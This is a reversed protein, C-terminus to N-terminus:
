VGNHHRQMTLIHSVINKTQKNFHHYRFYCVSWQNLLNSVRSQLLWPRIPLSDSEYDFHQSNSDRNFASCLNQIHTVMSPQIDRWKWKVGHMYFWYLLVCQVKNVLRVFKQTIQDYICYISQILHPLNCIFPNIHAKCLLQSTNWSYPGFQTWGQEYKCSNLQM